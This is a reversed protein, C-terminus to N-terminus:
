KTNIDQVQVNATEEVEKFHRRVKIPLQDVFDEDATRHQWAGAVLYALEYVTIDKKPIFTYRDNM